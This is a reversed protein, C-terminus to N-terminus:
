GDLHHPCEVPRQQERLLVDEVVHQPADGERSQITRYRDTFSIVNAHRHLRIQLLNPRNLGELIVDWARQLILVVVQCFRKMM